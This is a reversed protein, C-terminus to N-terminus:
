LDADYVAVGSRGRNGNLTSDESAGGSRAGALAEGAIRREFNPTRLEREPGARGVSQDKGRPFRHHM